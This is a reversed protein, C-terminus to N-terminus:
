LRRDLFTRVDEPVVMLNVAHDTWGEAVPYEREALGQFYALAAGETDAHTVAPKHNVQLPLSVKLSLKGSRKVRKLQKENLAVTPPDSTRKAFLSAMYMHMTM